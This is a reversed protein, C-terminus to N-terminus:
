SIKTTCGAGISGMLGCSPAFITSAGAGFTGALAPSFVFGWGKTIANYRNLVTASALQYVFPNRSVDNRLDACISGGAAHANPAPYSQVWMNRDIVKKFSNM